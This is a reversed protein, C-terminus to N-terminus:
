RSEEIKKETRRRNATGHQGRQKERLRERRQAPDRTPEEGRENRPSKKEGM